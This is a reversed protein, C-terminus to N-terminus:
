SLKEPTEASLAPGNTLVITRITKTKKVNSQQTGWDWDRTSCTCGDQVLVNRGCCFVSSLLSPQDVLRKDEATTEVRWTM